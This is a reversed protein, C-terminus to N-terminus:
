LTVLSANGIERGGAAHDGTAAALALRIVGRHCVVLAPLAGRRERLDHL